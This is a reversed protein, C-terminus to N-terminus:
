TLFALSFVMVVSVFQRFDLHIPILGLPSPSRSLQRWYSKDEPPALHGNVESADGLKSEVLKKATATGGSTLPAM